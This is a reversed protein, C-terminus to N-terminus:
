KVFFKKGNMIYLGKAAKEVRQGNINFIDSKANTKVEAIGTTEEDFNLNIRSAAVTTQLYARNKAVTNDNAKYFGLQNNVVNLIYNTKGEGADTAVVLDNGRVFLNGTVDDTTTATPVSYVNDGGDTARLLIGTGKPVKNIQVMKIASNDEKAIYAKLDTVSTFDLDFNSAYTSYGAASVYIDISSPAAGAVHKYLQIPNVSTGSYYRFRNQNSAANYRLLYNNSKSKVEADGSTISISHEIADDSVNVGTSNATRGIYKGTTAMISGDTMNITFENAKTDLTETIKSENITVSIVNNTADAPASGKYAVGAEENVILYQGDELQSDETVKVYYGSPSPEPGVGKPNVTIMCITEGDNYQVGGTYKAKIVAAGTSGGLTIVGADSVTAVDNYSSTFVIGTLSNPNNFTPATFEDGKTITVSTESFSINAEGRATTITYTATGSLFLSNGAFTATITATGEKEGITVVGTTANVDAVDANDTSFIVALNNPNTLVPAEFGTNAPLTNYSDTAYAIGPLKKGNISVIYNNAAIEKTSSYTTLGGYVVVADGISLDSADKFAVNGINKGRYVLLENTTGDDDSIYYRYNTDDGMVSTNYFKSVNGKIFYSSSTGSAPTNELAEAVSFPREESGDGANPNFINVIFEKSVPKYTVADTPTVTANVTVVGKTTGALYENGDIYLLEDNSSQYSVTYDASSNVDLTFNGTGEFPIELPSLNSITGIPTRSDSVGEILQVNSVYFTGKGTGSGSNNTFSLIINGVTPNGEFTMTTTTNSTIDHNGWSNGGVSLAINVKSTAKTTRYSVVVSKVPYDQAAIEINSIAASNNLLQQLSQSFDHKDGDAAWSSLSGVILACLLLTTKLLNFHKM